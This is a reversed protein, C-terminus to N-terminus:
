TQWERAYEVTITSMFLFDTQSSLKRRFDIALRGKILIDRQLDTKRHFYLIRQTLRTTDETPVVILLVYLVDTFNIDRLSPSEWKM